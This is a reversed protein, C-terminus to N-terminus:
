KAHCWHQGTLTLATRWTWGSVSCRRWLRHRCADSLRRPRARRHRPHKAQDKALNRWVCGGAAAGGRARGRPARARQDVAPACVLTDSGATRTANGHVAGLLTWARCTLLYQRASSRECSGAPPCCLGAGAWSKCAAVTCAADAPRSHLSSARRCCVRQQGRRPVCCLSPSNPSNEPWKCGIWSTCFSLEGAPAPLSVGPRAGAADPAPTGAGPGIGPNGGPGASPNAAYGAGGTATQPAAGPNGTYGAQAPAAHPAAVAGGGVGTHPHM